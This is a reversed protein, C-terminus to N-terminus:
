TQVPVPLAAPQPPEVVQPRPHPAAADRLRLVRHDPLEV